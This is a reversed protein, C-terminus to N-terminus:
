AAAFARARARNEGIIEAERAFLGRLIKLGDFCRGQDIAERLDLLGDIIERNTFSRLTPAFLNDFLGRSRGAQLPDILMTQVVFYLQRLPTTTEEPQLVHNEMLFTVDNLLEIGVKRDVRLVAGNVFLREQPKLALRMTGSHGSHGTEGRPNM